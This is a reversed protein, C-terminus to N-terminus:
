IQLVIMHKNFCQLPICKKKYVTHKKIMKKADKRYCKQLYRIILSNTFTLFEIINKDM